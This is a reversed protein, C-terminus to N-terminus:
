LYRITLGEQNKNWYAVGAADVIAYYHEALSFGEEEMWLLFHHNAEEYSIDLLSSFQFFIDHGLSPKIVKKFDPTGVWKGLPPFGVYYKPSCGNWAYDPNWWLRGNTIGARVIGQKCVLLCNRHRKANGFLPLGDIRTTLFRLKRKGEKVPHLERYWNM